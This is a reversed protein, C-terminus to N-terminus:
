RRHGYRLVRTFNLLKKIAYHKEMSNTSDCRWQWFFNSCVTERFCKLNRFNDEFQDSRVATTRAGGTQHGKQNIHHFIVWIEGYSNPFFFRLLTREYGPSLRQYAQKSLWVPGCVLSSPPYLCEDPMQSKSSIVKGHLTTSGYQCRDWTYGM